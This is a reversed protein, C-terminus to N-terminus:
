HTLDNISCQSKIHHVKSSLQKLDKDDIGLWPLSGTHFFILLYVMSELDDRKDLQIQNHCNLSAFRVNGVFGSKKAVDSNDISSNFNSLGFDLLFIKNKFENVGVALNEPKLDQHIINNSHM